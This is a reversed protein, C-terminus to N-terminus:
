GRLLFSGMSVNGEFFSKAFNELCSNQFQLTLNRLCVILSTSIRSYETLKDLVTPFKDAGFVGVSIRWIRPRASRSDYDM